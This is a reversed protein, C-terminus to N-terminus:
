GAREAAQSRLCFCAPSSVRWAAGGVTPTREHLHPRAADALREIWLELAPLAGKIEIAPQQRVLTGGAAGIGTSQSGSSQQGTGLQVGNNAAKVFKLRAALGLRSNEVVGVRFVNVMEHLLLEGCGDAVGSQLQVG